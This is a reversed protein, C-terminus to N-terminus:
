TEKFEEVQYISVDLKKTRWREGPAGMKYCLHTLFEQPDPIKDWVQPLFTARQFEDRILVGDIGPRLKAILDRWDTYELPQTPTLRSIEIQLMATEDMTVPPFRYDQTAAAAAHEQVDIVLPQYAELTGICGRLQDHITLTVFSAGDVRLDESYEELDLDPLARGSAAASIAERAISLLTQRDSECLTSNAKM